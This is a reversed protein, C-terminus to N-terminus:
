MEERFLRERENRQRMREMMRAHELRKMHLVRENAIAQPTLWREVPTEDSKFHVGDQEFAIEPDGIVTGYSRTRDFKPLKEDTNLGM